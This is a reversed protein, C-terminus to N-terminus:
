LYVLYVFVINPGQRIQAASKADYVFCRSHMYWRERVGCEFGCEFLLRACRDRTCRECAMSARNKQVGNEWVACFFVRTNVAWM